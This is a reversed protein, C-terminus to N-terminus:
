IREIITEGSEQYIKCVGEQELEHAVREIIPSAAEAGSEIAADDAIGSEDAEELGFLLAVMWLETKHGPEMHQTIARRVKTETDM